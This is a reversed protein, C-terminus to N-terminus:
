EEEHLDKNVVNGVKYLKPFIRNLHLKCNILGWEMAHRMMNPETSSIMSREGPTPTTRANELMQMETLSRGYKAMQTCIQSTLSFHGAPLTLLFIMESIRAM